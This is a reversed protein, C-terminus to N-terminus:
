RAGGRRVVRVPALVLKGLRWTVSGHVAELQSRAEAKLNERLESTIKEHMYAASLVEHRLAEKQDELLDIRRMMQAAPEDAMAQMREQLVTLEVRAGVADDRSRLLEHQLSRIVAILEDPTEDGRPVWSIVSPLAPENDPSESAPTETIKDVDDETDMEAGSEAKTEAAQDNPSM